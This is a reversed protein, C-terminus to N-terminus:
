RRRRLLALGGLALLSLSAPEPIHLNGVVPIMGSADAGFMTVYDYWSGGDYANHFLGGAPDDTLSTLLRGWTNGSTADTYEEYLVLDDRGDNDMDALLPTASTSNPDLNFPSAWSTGADCLYTGSSLGAVWTWAGDGNRDDVEVVDDKGDGDIDGILTAIHNAQIGLGGWFTANGGNLGSGFTSFQGVIFNDAPNQMAIDDAGDGNFDGSLLLGATTGTPAFWGNTLIPANGELGQADSHAAQVELLGPNGVSPISTIADAKGDGNVDALLAGNVSTEWRPSWNQDWGVSGVPPAFLDGQDVGPAVNTVGTNRGAMISHGNANLGQTVIDSVGDGNVDGVLPNNPSPTLGGDNYLTYSTLYHAPVPGTGDNTAAVWYGAFPSGTSGSNFLYLSDGRVPGAMVTVGGLAMVLVLSIFVRGKSM